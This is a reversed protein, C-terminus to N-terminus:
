DSLTHVDMIWASIPGDTTLSGLYSAAGNSSPPRRSYTHSHVSGSTNQHTHTHLQLMCKNIQVTLLKQSSKLTQYLVLVSWCSCLEAEQSWTNPFYITVWRETMQNGSWDTRVGSFSFLRVSKNYKEVPEKKSNFNVEPFAVHSTETPSEETIEGELLIVNM